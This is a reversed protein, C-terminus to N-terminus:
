AALVELAASFEAPRAFTLDRVWSSTLAPDTSVVFQAGGSRAIAVIFDAGRDPTTRPPDYVDEVLLMTPVLSDLIERRRNQALAREYAPLALVGELEAVLRPSSVIEFAGARFDDLIEVSDSASPGCIAAVLVDTDIVARALM